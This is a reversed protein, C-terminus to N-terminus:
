LQRDAGLVPLARRVSDVVTDDIDAILRQPGYGAEAVPRGTPDIVASFGLGTPGDDTGAKDAGGPRAQGAAVLWCTSDLARARTILRWQELKGPGDSFSTPVVMVRVGEERAYAIFQEPFRLDYCIALGVRTGNVDVAVLSGGPKVTDSERFGFADYCHIKNYGTHIGGGTVLATNHIRRITKGEREVVDAPTFMGAVVVVGHTAAAAALATAFPGDLPEAVEDLRGSNFAKMAAEPFVVLDAGAAAAEGIRAVMVALNDGVVPGSTFQEVSVKM